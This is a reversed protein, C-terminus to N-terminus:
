KIPIVTSANGGDIIYITTGKGALEKYTDYKKSQLYQPNERIAEGIKRIREVEALASRTANEAALITPDAQVNSIVVNQLDLPVSSRQFMELIKAAIEDNVRDQHKVVTDISSYKSIVQRIASRVDMRALREYITNLKIANVRKEEGFAEPTIQSFIGNRKAEEKPVCMRVYVDVSVPIGGINIRNDRGGEGTAAEYTEKISVSTAELLTLTNQQGNVDSEGLDVQGAEIIGATWGTPTLIKGVYGSPITFFESCGTLITAFVIAILIRTKNM